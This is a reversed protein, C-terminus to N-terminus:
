AQKKWKRNRQSLDIASSKGMPKWIKAKEDDDNM